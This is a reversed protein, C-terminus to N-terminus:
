VPSRGRTAATLKIKDPFKDVIKGIYIIISIEVSGKVSLYIDIGPLDHINIQHM